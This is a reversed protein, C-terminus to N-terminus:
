ILLGLLASILIIPVIIIGYKTFTKFSYNIDNKKLISMWMIGALAGIPTLFAGINSGIITSFIALKSNPIFSSFLISMPINNILNDVITSSAGYLLVTIFNNSALSRFTNSLAETVGNNTLGLVITFMSLVFVILNYPIRKLSEKLLSMNKNKIGYILFALLIIIFGSLCIYWMEINLYNSISLLITIIILVILSFITLYKNSIKEVNIDIIDIKKDLSKKFLIFLIFFSAIGAFITPIIMVKFYEFFTILKAQSLYINTPNGILLAMSYTNAVIFEMVLYPIPNINAKKTFYCIFPTFTLIVIDNSTFITLIAILIYLSIFLKYQSSKFISLTKSALFKFFGLCDLSISIFSMSLFLILIKIPNVVSNEKLKSFLLNIPTLNFIIMLLAGILAIIWFSQIEIYKIKITPKFLVALILFLCTLCSIIISLIM